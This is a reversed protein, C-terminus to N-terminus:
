HVKFNQIINLKYSPQQTPPLFILMIFRGKSRLQRNLKSLVTDLVEGMMWGKPQSFYPAPVNSVRNGQIKLNGFLSLQKAEGDANAILATKGKQWRQVTIRWGSELAGYWLWFLIPNKREVRSELLLIEWSTSRANQKETASAMILYLGGLDLLEMSTGSKRVRIDRYFSLYRKWLDVTEGRVDGSERRIRMRKVNYRKKRGDM